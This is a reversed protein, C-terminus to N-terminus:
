DPILFRNVQTNSTVDAQAHNGIMEASSKVTMLFSIETSMGCWGRAERSPPPKKIYLYSKDNYWSGVVKM